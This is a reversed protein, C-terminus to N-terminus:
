LGAEIRATGPNRAVYPPAPIEEVAAGPYGRTRRVVVRRGLWGYTRKPLFLGVLGVLMIVWGATHINFVSTNGTVAFALIAGLCIFGLAIGTRMTSEGKAATEPRRDPGYAHQSGPGSSDDPWTPRSGPTRRTSCGAGSTASRGRSCGPCTCRLSGSACASRPRLSTETSACSSSASSASPSSTGTPPSPRWTP